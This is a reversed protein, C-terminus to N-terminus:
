EIEIKRMKLHKASIEQLQVDDDSPPLFVCPGLHPAEQRAIIQSYNLM